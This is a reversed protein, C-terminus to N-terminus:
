SVVAPNTSALLLSHGDQHQLGEGNLTTRGATAGLLFGRTMQDSAAWFADGTRQFGFMSYFIYVPIMPEGHTSYSTGAATFSAASGAENIGEHLIQGTTSEKYTLMLERDVSLYTQGLPSYIKATPFIADLGFTRAEDPIIPVIRKGFEKNKMLDKLLRVFAM